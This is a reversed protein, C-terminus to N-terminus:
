RAHRPKEVPALGPDCAPQGQGRTKRGYDLAFYVLTRDARGEGVRQARHAVARLLGDHRGYLAM